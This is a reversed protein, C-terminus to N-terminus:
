NSKEEKEVLYAQVLFRGEPDSDDHTSLTLLKSDATVQANEDIQAGMTRNDMISELYAKRNAEEKGSNFREMIHRSDSKYAAFVKYKYEANDFTIYIWAHEKMYADDAYQYLGGFM